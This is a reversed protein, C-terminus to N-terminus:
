DSSQFPKIAVDQDAGSLHNLYQVKLTMELNDEGHRIIGDRILCTLKTKSSCDMRAGASQLCQDTSSLQSYIFKICM